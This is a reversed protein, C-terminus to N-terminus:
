IMRIVLTAYFNGDEVTVYADGDMRRMLQKVIYLGLGNGGINETNSGRYFSDFLNSVEAVPLTCGTNSVTMLVCDEERAFEISIRKGDGYKIANEMLNQMAELLRDGDGSVLVDEFDSVDFETHLISLKDRYYACLKDVVKKLYIEEVTVSFDMFEERSLKYIEDVYSKIEETNGLIKELAEKKANEDDYLGEELAKAYLCIASLPTKIDHSLSVMLTKKEKQYELNKAKSDELNERLMDVGWLFKGLFRNKDAKLPKVLNGKALEYTMDSMDNFPKVLKFGVYAFVCINILIFVTMACNVILYTKDKQLGNYEIRYLTDGVKEVLYDNNCIEEPVFESIGVIHKYESLDIDSPLIGSELSQVIRKAEVVYFRENTKKYRVLIINVVIVALIELFIVYLAIKKFRSM